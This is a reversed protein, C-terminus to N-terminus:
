NSVRICVQVDRLIFGHYIYFADDIPHFLELDFTGRRLSGYVGTFFRSVPFSYPCSALIRTIAYADRSPLVDVRQCSMIRRAGLAVRRRTGDVGSYDDCPLSEGM